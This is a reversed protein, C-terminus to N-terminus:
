ERLPRMTAAACRPSDIRSAGPEPMRWDFIAPGRPLRERQRSVSSTGQLAGWRKTTSSKQASASRARACGSVHEACSCGSPRAAAEANVVTM